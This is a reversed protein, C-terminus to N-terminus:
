RVSSPVCSFVQTCKTRVIIIYLIRIIKSLFSFKFWAAKRRLIGSDCDCSKEGNMILVYKVNTSSVSRGAQM